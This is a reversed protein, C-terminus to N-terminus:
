RLPKHLLMHQGRQMSRGVHLAETQEVAFGSAEQYLQRAAQNDTAVHVYLHEIGAPLTM